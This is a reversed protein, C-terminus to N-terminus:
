QTDNPPLFQRRTFAYKIAINLSNSTAAMTNLAVFTRGFSLPNMYM